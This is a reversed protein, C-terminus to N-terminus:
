FSFGWCSDLSSRHRVGLPADKPGLPHELCFSQPCVNPKLFACLGRFGTRLAAPEQGEPARNAPCGHDPPAPEPGTRGPAWQADPGLRTRRLWAARPPPARLGWRCRRRGESTPLHAAPRWAPGPRGYCRSRCRCCSRQQPGLPHSACAGRLCVGRGRGVRLDCAAPTEARGAQPGRSQGSPAAPGRWRCVRVRTCVGTARPARSSVPAREDGADSGRSLESVDARGMKRRWGGPESPVCPGSAAGPLGSSASGRVSRASRGPWGVHCVVRCAGLPQTSFWSAKNVCYSYCAFEQSVLAARTRPLRPGRPVVPPRPRLPRRLGPATLVRLVRGPRDSPRARAAWAGVGRGRPREGM